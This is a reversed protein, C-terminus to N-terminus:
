YKHVERVLGNVICNTVRASSSRERVARVKGEPRVWHVFTKSLKSNITFVNTNKDANFM